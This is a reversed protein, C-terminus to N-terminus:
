TCQELRKGVLAELLKTRVSAAGAEEQSDDDPFTVGQFFRHVIQRYEECVRDSDSRTTKLMEMLKALQRLRPHALLEEAGVMQDLAEGFGAQCRRFDPCEGVEKQQIVGVLFDAVDQKNSVSGDAAPWSGYVADVGNKVKDGFQSYQNRLDGDQLLRGLNAVMTDQTSSHLCVAIQQMFNEFFCLMIFEEQLRETPYDFEESDIYLKEIQEVTLSFKGGQREAFGTTDAAAM